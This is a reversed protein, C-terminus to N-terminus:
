LPCDPCCFPNTPVAASYAASPTPCDTRTLLVVCIDAGAAVAGGSDSGATGAVATAAATIGADVTGVVDSVTGATIASSVLLTSTAEM